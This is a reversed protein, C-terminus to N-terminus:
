PSAFQRHTRRKTNWHSVGFLLLAGGIYALIFLEMMKASRYAKALEVAQPNQFTPENCWAVETNRNFSYLEAKKNFNGVVLGEEGIEIPTDNNTFLDMQKRFLIMGKYREKVELTVFYFSRDKDLTVEPLSRDEVAIVKGWFVVDAQRIQRKLAEFGHPVCVLGFSQRPSLCILIL